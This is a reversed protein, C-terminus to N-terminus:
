IECHIEEWFATKQFKTSIIKHVQTSTINSFRQQGFKRQFLKVFSEFNTFNVFNFVWRSDSQVSGNDQEDTRGTDLERALEIM